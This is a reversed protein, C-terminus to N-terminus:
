FTPIQALNDLVFDALVAAEDVCAAGGDGAPATGAGKSLQRQVDDWTLAHGEADTPVRLDVTAGHADIANAEGAVDWGEQNVWQQAARLAQTEKEIEKQEGVFDEEDTSDEYVNTVGAPLASQEEQAHSTVKTQKYCNHKAKVVTSKRQVESSRDLEELKAAGRLQRLLKTAQPAPDEDFDSEETDSAGEEWEGDDWDADEGEVGQLQSAKDAPPRKKSEPGTAAVARLSKSNDTFYQERIYWPCSETEVWDRFRQKVYEKDLPEGNEDMALFGAARDQKSWPHYQLLAWKANRAFGDNERLKIGPHLCVIPLRSLDKGTDDWWTLYPQRGGHFQVFHFFEFLSAEQVQEEPTEKWPLYPSPAAGAPFWYDGLSEYLEM